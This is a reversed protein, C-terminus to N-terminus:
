FRVKSVKGEKIMIVIQGKAPEKIEIGQLNYYRVGEGATVIELEDLGTSKMRFYIDGLPQVRLGPKYTASLVYIQNAEGDPYNVTFTEKASEGKSLFPYNRYVGDYMVTTNSLNDDEPMLINVNVYGDFYGSLVSYNLNVDFTSTPTEYVTISNGGFTTNVKNAGPIDLLDLQLKGQAISPNMTVSDFTAIVQQNIPDYMGLQFKTPSTVTPTGAMATFKTIWEFVENSKPQSVVPTVAGMYKVKEDKILVAALSETLEYDTENQIKVNLKVNKSSYILSGAEINTITMKPIPVNEITAEGDKLTFYIYNPCPYSTIIPVYPANKINRDSVAITVKYKGDPLNPVNITPGNTTNFYYGPSLEVTVGGNFTGGRTVTEGPTGDIPEFIAGVNVKVKHAMASYWGQPYWPYCKFNLVKATGEAYCGGYMLLNDPRDVVPQGTPKQIGFIGNLGYVFGTSGAGGIGQEEPNMTELLYYGDSTGGWGWNFHYYGHGDYGDCIFSHGGDNYPHGNFIVPGCNAINDYVMQNWQSPSYGMRYAPYCNVDYKFYKVLAEAILVGQTGSADTGYNMDVSHGCAKMLYAVAAAQASTYGTGRYVDIMNDWDFEQAGFDMTLTKGGRSWSYSNSGEGKDPYNFYKMVQAMSTAVCGTYTARNSIKPADNNYPADQNWKTSCLPAIARMEAGTPASTAARLGRSVNYGIQRGTEELWWKLQPPMNDPDVMGSDSYGLVTFAADDAALIRYGNGDKNNFVYAAPEGQPTMATYVPATQLNRAASKNRSSERMMRGIAQEPTLPAAFVSVGLSLCVAALIQKKM